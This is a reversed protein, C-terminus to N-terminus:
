SRSSSSQYHRSSSHHHSMSDHRHHSHHHRLDRSRPRDQKHHRHHNHPRHAKPPRTVSDAVSRFHGHRHGHRHDHRQGHSHDCAGRRSHRCREHEEIEAARRRRYWATFICIGATLVVLFIVVLCITLVNAKDVADSAMSDFAVPLLTAVTGHSVRGPPDPSAQREAWARTCVCRSAAIRMDKWHHRLARPERGSGTNSFTDGTVNHQRARVLFNCCM